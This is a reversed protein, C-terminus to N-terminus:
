QVSSGSSPAPVPLVFFFTAGPEPANSVSWLRGEHAEVISRCIALGMGMGKTKTTFFPEFIKEPDALGAGSDRISILITHDDQRVSRVVIRKPRDEIGDMAEIANNLLNIAVQQLQLRDCELLPLDNGLESEIEISKRDIESDLLALVEEFMANIDLKSRQPETRNFLARIRKVVEAAERGNEIVKQASLMANSIKPPEASLWRVCAQGSTISANLPQSIEHAISAAFEAVTAIRTARVLHAQSRRLAEEAHKREDIDILMGYWRLIKGEKDRLPYARAQFWRYINDAGRQRFEFEKLAVSEGSDLWQRLTVPVDEPHIVNTWGFGLMDKLTQGNFDLFRQNVYELAGNPGVVYILSPLTEIMLRLNAEGALLADETQKRDDIDYSYGYWRTVKGKEDLVPRATTSFWRYVGDFRRLRVEIKLVSSDALSGALAKEAREVDDPHVSVRWDMLEDFSLGTYRIKEKNVYEREGNPSLMFMQAPMMDFLAELEREKARLAAEMKKQETIDVAAGYWRAIQGAEDYVPRAQSKFWRYEGDARLRRVEFELPEGSQVSESWARAAAPVDDPHMDTRDRLQELSMGSYNLIENNVYDLAGNASLRYIHVPPTELIARFERKGKQLVGELRKQETLERVFVVFLEEGDCTFKKSSIDAPFISGDSRLGPLEVNLVSANVSLGPILFSIPKGIMECELWGFLMATAVNALRILGDKDLLVVADNAADAILRYGEELSSRRKEM